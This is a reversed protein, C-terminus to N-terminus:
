AIVPGSNPQHVRRERAERVQCGLAPTMVNRQVCLYSCPTGERACPDMMLVAGRDM